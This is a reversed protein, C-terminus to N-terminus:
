TDFTSACISVPMLFCPNLTPSKSQGNQYKQMGATNFAAVSRWQKVLPMTSLTSLAELRSCRLLQVNFIEFSELKLLLSM